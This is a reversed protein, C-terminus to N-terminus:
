VGREFSFGERFERLRANLEESRGRLPSEEHMEEAFRVWQNEEQWHEHLIVEIHVAGDPLKVIKIEDVEEPLARKLAARVADLSVATNNEPMTPLNWPFLSALPYCFRLISVFLCLSGRTKLVPPLSDVLRLGPCGGQMRGLGDGLGRKRHVSGLLRKM